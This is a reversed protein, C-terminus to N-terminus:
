DLLHIQEDKRIEKKIGIEERLKNALSKIDWRTIDKFFETDGERMERRKKYRKKFADEFKKPDKCKAAYYINFPLPVATGSLIKIRQRLNNTIGIKFYDKMVPHKLVYFVNPGYKIKRLGYGKGIAKFTGTKKDVDRSLMKAMDQYPHARNGGWGLGIAADCIERIIMPERAEELVRKAAEKTTM